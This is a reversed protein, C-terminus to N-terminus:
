KLYYLNESKIIREDSLLRKLHLSIAMKEFVRRLEYNKKIPGYFIFLDALEELTSPKKLSMLLKEERKYIVDLYNQLRIQIDETIIGNHSTILMSPKLNMCLKISDIYDDINSCLHGYWPGFARLDIDASFLISDEILFCCHGPTHGPTHIVKLRTTGFDLMEGDNLERHVPSPTVGSMNLYQKWMREEHFDIFGYQETFVDLSRIAPADKAHAWIEARTFKHNNLIHDEHFHSNIIIDIGHNLFFDIDTSGCSTDILVRVEDEIFLTNAYPFGKPSEVFKINGKISTIL